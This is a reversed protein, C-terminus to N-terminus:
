HCCANWVCSAWSCTAAIGANTSPITAISSSTSRCRHSPGPVPVGPRGHSAQTADMPAYLQTSRGVAAGNPPVSPWGQHHDNPRCLLTSCGCHAIPVATRASTAPQSRSPNRAHACVADPVAMVAARRHHAHGHRYRREEGPGGGTLADSLKRLYQLTTTTSISKKSKSFERGGWWDKSLFTLSMWIPPFPTTGSREGRGHQTRGTRAVLQM